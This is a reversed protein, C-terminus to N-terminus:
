TRTWTEPTFIDFFLKLHRNTANVLFVGDIDIDMPPGTDIDMDMSMGMGINMNMNM